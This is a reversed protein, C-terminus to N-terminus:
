LCGPVPSINGACSQLGNGTRVVRVAKDGDEPSAVKGDLGPSCYVHGLAGRHLYHRPDV